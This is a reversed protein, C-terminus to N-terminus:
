EEWTVEIDVVAAGAKAKEIDFPKM